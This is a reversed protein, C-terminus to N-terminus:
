NKRVNIVRKRHGQSVALFRFNEEDETSNESHEKKVTEALKKIEETQKPTLDNSMSVRKFRQDAEKLQQLNSM